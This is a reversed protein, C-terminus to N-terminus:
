RRGVGQDRALARFRGRVDIGRIDVGRIDVGRIDVSLLPPAESAGNPEHTVSPQLKRRRIAFRGDLAPSREPRRYGSGTM